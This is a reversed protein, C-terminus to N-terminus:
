EAIGDAGNEGIQVRWAVFLNGLSFAAAMFFVWQPGWITWIFGSLQAALISVVHDLSTGTSLTATIEEKTIAISKLYVAKVVGIQMSLRDMIFLAYIFLVPWGNGPLVKSSIGWVVFGYIIYIFIFTLADVYMMRKIGFRDIWRGISRMFFISIFSAAILLLSMTDARKLLLDIIVWSGFVYAIQKQVGNLMTLLYYYRYQKRLVLRTRKRAGLAPINLRVLLVAAIAAIFFFSAGILFLLNVPTHFSFAGFRFGLFVTIGAVFGFLMKVSAYQGVRRGVQGPEALAMGMSDSLPMFLHMGMSNLFLFILMVGYSPTFVGLAMLGTCSALQAILSIKADGLFSLSAIVLACLLGPLERPFEIFARQTTTVNYAEKFFNSYVSDSLGNGLAAASIMIFFLLMGKSLPKKQLDM